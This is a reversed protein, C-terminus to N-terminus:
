AKRFKALANVCAGFHTAPIDEIRKQKAWGLFAVESAGKAELEDRIFAVQDATISGPPPTYAAEEAPQESGHGDDDEAAALGLAAKLTYRQLYTVTSGVGQIHNKNGSEDRGAHLTTEEFHGDRHSLVCTVSVPEGIKSSVRFRYSLGFRGLIPDVTRAIEALDEHAYDTRAAGAKRSEFGVRRNKRIVPIEAKAEAMAVDFAKRAALADMEKALAVAERYMEVNGTELAARVIDMPQTVPTVARPRRTALPKINSEPLPEASM